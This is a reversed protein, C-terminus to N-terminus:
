TGLGTTNGSASVCVCEREREKEPEATATSLRGEAAKFGSSRFKLLLCIILGGRQPKPFASLGFRACMSSSRVTM